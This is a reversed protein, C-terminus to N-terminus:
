TVIDSSLNLTGDGRVSIVCPRVVSTVIVLVLDIKGLFKKSTSTFPNKGVHECVTKIKVMKSNLDSVFYNLTTFCRWHPSEMVLVRDLIGSM